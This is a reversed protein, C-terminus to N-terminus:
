GEVFEFEFAFAFYNMALQDNNISFIQRSGSSVAVEKNPVKRM